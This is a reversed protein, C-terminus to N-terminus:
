CLISTARCNNRARSRGQPRVSLRLHQADSDPDLFHQFYSLNYLTGSYGNVRELRDYYATNSIFKCRGADWEIKM